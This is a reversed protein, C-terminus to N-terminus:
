SRSCWWRDNVMNASGPTPTRSVVADPYRVADGITAVGADPGLARCGSGGLSTRLAFAINQTNQSHNVTGGVMAVPAFGDFEYRENQAEAWPFFQDRTMTPRRASASM